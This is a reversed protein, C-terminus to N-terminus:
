TRFEEQRWSVQLQDPNPVALDYKKRRGHYTYPLLCLQSQVAIQTHNDKGFEWVLWPRSSRPHLQHRRQSLYSGVPITSRCDLLWCIIKWLLLRSGSHKTGHLKQCTTCHCFKSDLPKERSLQYKVKGCHCSAEYRAHFNPDNDHVKYPARHKWENLEGETNGEDGNNGNAHYTSAQEAMIRSSTHFQLINIRSLTRSAPSISRSTPYLHASSSLLRHAKLIRSAMFWNSIIPSIFFCVLNLLPIYKWQFIARSNWNPHLSSM